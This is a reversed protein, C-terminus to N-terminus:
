VSFYRTHRYYGLMDLATTKTTATIVSLKLNDANGRVIDNKLVRKIKAFSEEIPNLDPSYTPTYLLEIGMEGLWEELAEGGEYHHCSLNDMVIVDGISLCPLGTSANLSQGCEGFFQLFEFTNTAGDIIQAYEIGNLSCLASLTFNPSQAKRVM